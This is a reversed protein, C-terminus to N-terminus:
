TCWERSVLTKVIRQASAAREQGWTKAYWEVLFDKGDSFFFCFLVTDVCNYHFCLKWVEENFQAGSKIIVSM